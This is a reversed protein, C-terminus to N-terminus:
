LIIQLILISLWPTLKDVVTTNQKKLPNIRWPPSMEKKVVSPALAGRLYRLPKHPFPKHNPPFSTPRYNM